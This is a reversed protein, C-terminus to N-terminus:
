RLLIIAIVCRPFCELMKESFELAKSYLETSDNLMAKGLCAEAEVLCKLAEAEQPDREGLWIDEKMKMERGLM